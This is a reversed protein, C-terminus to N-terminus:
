RQSHVAPPGASRVAARTRLHNIVRSGAVVEGPLNVVSAPVGIFFATIALACAHAGSEGRLHEGRRGGDYIPTSGREGAFDAGLDVGYPVGEPGAADGVGEFDDLLNGPEEEEAAEVVVAVGAGEFVEAPGAEFVVFGAGHEVEDGFVDEGEEAGEAGVAGGVGMLHLVGAEGDGGGSEEGFDDVEEVVDGHVVAVGFAVDILVHEAFDGGGALVALEAGGRWMM